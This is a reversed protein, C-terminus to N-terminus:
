DLKRFGWNKVWLRAGLLESRKTRAPLCGIRAQSVYEQKNLFGGYRDYLGQPLDWHFITVMPVIGNALLEDVLDEYYQLGQPNIPDNRGGLPIVRSWSISFRYVKAGLQKLLAVDEKYRHYSDCAISGDSKDAIKGPKRCFTDWISDERGGEKVGGEIQSSALACTNARDQKTTSPKEETVM